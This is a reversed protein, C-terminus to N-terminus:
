PGSAQGAEALKAAAEDAIRIRRDEIFSAVLDPELRYFRGLDYLFAAESDCIEGDAAALDLCATLLRFGFSQATVQASPLNTLLVEPAVPANIAALARAQDNSEEFIQTAAAELAAREEEGVTKNAAALAVLLQFTWIKEEM